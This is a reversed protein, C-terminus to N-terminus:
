SDPESTPEARRARRRENAQRLIEQDIVSPPMPELTLTQAFHTELANHDDALTDAWSDLRDIMAQITDLLLPWAEIALRGQYHEYFSRLYAILLLSLISLLM